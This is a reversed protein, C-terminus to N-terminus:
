SCCGSKKESLDAADDNVVVVGRGGRGTAVGPTGGGQGKVDEQSESVQLM